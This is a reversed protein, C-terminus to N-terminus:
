LIMIITPIICYNLINVFINCSINPTSNQNILSDNLIEYCISFILLNNLDQIENMAENKDIIYNNESVSFRSFTHSHCKIRKTM